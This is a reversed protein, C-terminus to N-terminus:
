EKDKMMLFIIMAARLAKGKSHIAGYSKNDRFLVLGERCLNLSGKEILAEIIPWADSPDNCPDYYCKTAKVFGDPEIVSVADCGPLEKSTCEPWRLKAVAKAMQQNSWNEYDKM